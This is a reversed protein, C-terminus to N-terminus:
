YTPPMLKSNPSDRDKNKSRFNEWLGKVIDTVVLSNTNSGIIRLVFIGDIALYEVAFERLLPSKSMNRYQTFKFHKNVYDLQNTVAFILHRVFSCLLAICLFFIWFWLFLFLKENFLNIPLVCQVSYRQINGVVRVKLDCMTVRPFTLSAEPEENNLLRKVEKIGYSYFDNNLFYNLAIIQLVTNIIYLAKTVLYCAILYTGKKRSCCFCSCAILNKLSWTLERSVQYRAKIYRTFMEIIYDLAQERKEQKGVHELIEAEEVISEIDIGSRTNMSRWFLAPLFFFFAMVLFMIPVWQYYEIHKQGVNQQPGPIPKDYSLYYTNSVWCYSNTYAEWGGSFHAPVWCHIPEGVLHSGTVIISFTLLIATTYTHSLRDSNEEDKRPDPFAVNGVVSAVKEM